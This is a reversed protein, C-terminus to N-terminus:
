VILMADGFSYFRYGHKVAERYASLVPEQGALASVLMLLTSRPLHFNTVLADVVRFRHGPLILLRTFGSGPQLPGDGADRGAQELVRVSTTGVAVVRGGRARTEEIATCANTTIEYWEAHMPHLRPDEEAVPKFTGPGVHLLVRALGIRDAQLRELLAPTFHLGATPAAASGTVTGYVTQYREPEALATHIYPPLPTEGTNEPDVDAAFRLIRHGDEVVDEVVAELSGFWVRRGPRLRRGPRVMAEWRQADVRRLLLAEVAGGSETVHGRLRARLVRTENVVLLDGPRLFRGIEAFHAHEIAGGDRQLVLLRSADRPEVPTQAILERPLHYDFDSTRM